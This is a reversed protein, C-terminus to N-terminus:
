VGQGGILFSGGHCIGTKKTELVSDNMEFLNSDITKCHSLVLDEEPALLKLWNRVAALNRQEVM